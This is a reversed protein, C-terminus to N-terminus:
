RAFPDPKGATTAIVPAVSYVPYAAIKSIIAEDASTIEPLADTVQWKVEALPLFFATTKITVSLQGGAQTASTLTIERIGLVRASNNLRSLFTSVRGFDGAVTVQLETESPSSLAASTTSVEGPALQSSKIAVGSEAAIREIGVILGSIDKDSPLAKELTGLKSRLDQQNIGGLKDAKETLKKLKDSEAAVKARLDLIRGVQPIIILPVLIVLAVVVLIPGFYSKINGVLKASSESALGLKM